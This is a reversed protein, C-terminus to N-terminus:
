KLALKFVEKLDKVYHFKVGKVYIPKIDEINKQNEKCLIIDTVGSRKAALIKEKIGGVPLVKGHLTIEGTMAIHKRVKRGTIASLLSTAMTVGASPGDKPIAGEPVHIHINKDEFFDDSIGFEEAHARIYQLGLTASEKMVDGLNGTLILKGAKSKCISTEIQLIEGGVSTWALGTVIGVEEKDDQEDQSFPALGLYEYLSGELITEKYNEDMAIKRALKRSMKAITKDLARVGSERTYQEIIARITKKPISIAGEPIGHNSFQKPILYKNAIEIKEEVIYGSINILEMRDLLPKSITSLSNATAIFLVNSLDFDMDIFNDHFAKNQEPDLVELLASEPDGKYDTGVKDIEDLIFVPNSSGVKLLNQIIRGPMAGIYTRRHGRIESEDHLGGLSIRAYKRGLADAISKGLSTKGVGPPGYLCIIPSNLTGKLKLVALHEIIREKVDDLGFHDKNLIREASKLNYNDKTFEGWPLDVLTQVYNCQVSYDPSHSSLAELKQIQKEVAAKVEDSWKKKAAKEKIQKLDQESISGGLEKQITKIQQQLFYERQQKDINEMAQSQISSKIELMQCMTSLKNLLVTAREEIDEIELITQRDDKELGVNSAVFNIIQSDAEINKLAFLLDQQVNGSLRIIRVASDKVASILAKFNQTPNKPDHNYIVSRPGIVGTLYGKKNEVVSKLTFSEKGQVIVTTAGDPMELIKLINATTGVEHLDEFKPDDVRKDRQAVCGIRNGKKNNERILKLSSKRGVNIPLIVGPFLVTNRLPLIDIESNDDIKNFKGESDEESVLPIFSTEELDEGLANIIVKKIEKM